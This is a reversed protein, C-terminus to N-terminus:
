AAAETIRGLAALAGKIASQFDASTLPRDSPLGRASVVAELAARMEQEILFRDRGSAALDRIRPGAETIWAEWAYEVVWRNALELPTPEIEQNLAWLVVEFNVQRLESQNIAGSPGLAADVIRQAQEHRALGALDTL